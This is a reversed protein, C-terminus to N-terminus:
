IYLIICFFCPVYTYTEKHMHRFAHVTRNYKHTHIYTHFTYKSICPILLTHISVYLVEQSGASRQPPTYVDESTQLGKCLKLPRLVYMYVQVCISVYRSVICIHKGYMCVFLLLCVSM